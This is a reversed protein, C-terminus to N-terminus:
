SPRFLAEIPTGDVEGPPTDLMACFTPALDLISVPQTLEGREGGPVRAVFFGDPRHEGTRGYSNSGELVGLKPSSLRVNAAAGGAIRTSGTPAADSWEVLLDPLLDLHEGRYLDRVRRVARIISGGTREDKIERLDTILRHCLADAEAGPTVRGNLERGKLNLRIGGVALGNNVPFCLSRPGDVPLSPLGTPRLREIGARVDRRLTEPLTRWAARAMSTLAGEPPQPPEPRPKAYGLRVLIEPLLFQAGYWYSMGHASLVIVPTDAYARLLRGVASDIAQYVRLLPDGLAAAVAADHAPHHVDHLHWCQHGACHGETFVQIAFDWDTDALVQETLRGKARAGRELREVLNRYADLDRDPGDCTQGLPHSGFRRRIMKELQRPRARFGFLADHSGWEVTQVGNLGEALESLPVDLVAVRRGAASMRSWFPTGHLLREDACRYYEYSGARLQVLSHHGHRAPSLGTYLSPWTSGVFFGELGRIRASIGVDMLEALNPLMGAAVWEAVLDANAADIALVLLRGSM